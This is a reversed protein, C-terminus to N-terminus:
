FDSEFSGRKDVIVAQQLLKYEKGLFSGIKDKKWEKEYPKDGDLEIRIKTIGDSILQTIEEPSVKYPLTISFTKVVIGGASKVNGILDETTSQSFGDLTFVEGKSTKILMRAGAPASIPESSQLTADIFYNTVGDKIAASMSMSLIVKDSFSRFTESTCGILRLGSDEVKDYNIKQASAGIAMALAFVLCFMKKM